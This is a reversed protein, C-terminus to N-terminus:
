RGGAGDAVGEARKQAWQLEEGHVCFGALESAKAAENAAPVSSRPVTSASSVLTFRGSGASPPLHPPDFFCGASSFSRSLLVPHPLPIVLPSMRSPLRPSSSPRSLPFSTTFACVRTHSGAKREPTMELGCSHM